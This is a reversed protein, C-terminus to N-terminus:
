LPHEKRRLATQIDSMRSVATKTKEKMISGQKQTEETKNSKQEM